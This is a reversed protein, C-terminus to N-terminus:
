HHERASSYLRVEFQDAFFGRPRKEFVDWTTKSMTEGRHYMEAPAVTTSVVLDDREQLSQTPSDGETSAHPGVLETRGFAEARARALNVYHEKNVISVPRVKEVTAGLKLLVEAKEAAVDDPM